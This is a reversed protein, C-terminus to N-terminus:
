GLTVPEASQAPQQGNSAVAKPVPATRAALDAKMGQYTAMAIPGCVVVMAIEEKYQGGIDGLDVGHKTLVPGVTMAVAARADETYVEALSPYLRALFPIAIDLGMRVASTNQDIHAAQEAAAQAAEADELEQMEANPEGATLQLRRLDAAQEASMDPGQGADTQDHDIM